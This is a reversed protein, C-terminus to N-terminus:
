ITKCLWYCVMATLVNWTDCWLVVHYCYPFKRFTVQIRVQFVGQHIWNALSSLLYVNQEKICSPQHLQLGWHVFLLLGLALHAHRGTSERDTWAIRKHQALKQLVCSSLQCRSLLMHTWNNDKRRHKCICWRLGCSNNGCGRYTLHPASACTTLTWCPCCSSLETTCIDHRYLILQRGKWIQHSNLGEVVKQLAYGPLEYLFMYRLSSHQNGPRPGCVSHYTFRTQMDSHDLGHIVLSM